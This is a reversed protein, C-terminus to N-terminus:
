ESGADTIHREEYSAGKRDTDYYFIGCDASDGFRGTGGAGMRCDSIKKTQENNLIRILEICRREAWSYEFMYGRSQLIELANKVDFSGELLKFFDCEVKEKVVHCFGRRNVFVGSLWQDELVSQISLVAKRYLRKVREDYPREPWLAEVAEEMSVEAGLKDVCYAFLERAKSNGFHLPRGDAFVEFRGFAVIKIRKEMRKSLLKVRMVADQIDRKDYPKMICYDAKIKMADVVYRTYGTVYILIMDPNLKKLECGLTIGDMGPMEVDLLAFDVPQKRAFELADEGNDFKGVLEIEPIDRCEAEFQAMSLLEDDVLITRM